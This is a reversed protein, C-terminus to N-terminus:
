PIVWGFGSFDHYKGDDIEQEGSSNEVECHDGTIQRDASGANRKITKLLATGCDQLAARSTKAIQNV